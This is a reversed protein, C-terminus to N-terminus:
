HKLQDNALIQLVSFFTEKHSSWEQFSFRQGQLGNRFSRIVMHDPPAGAGVPRQPSHSVATWRDSTVASATPRDNGPSRSSDGVLASCRQDHRLKDRNVRRQQKTALDHRVRKHGWPSYGVLSRQGHSKGPWFVPTPQWKRRWPIKRVWPSM